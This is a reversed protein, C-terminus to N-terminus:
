LANRSSQYGLFMLVTHVVTLVIPLVIWFLFVHIEQTVFSVILAIAILLSAINVTIVMTGQKAPANMVRFQGYAVALMLGGSWRIWGADFAAGGTLAVFQAPIILLVIGYIGYVLIGWILALQMVGSIRGM